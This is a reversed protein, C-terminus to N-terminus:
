QTALMIIFLGGFAVVLALIMYTQVVGTQILRFQKGFWQPVAAGLTDGIFRNIVPIDFYNRFIGGLWYTVRAVLHLVGDIVRRDMGEFVFTEAVWKAPRVFLFDYLEDFYYKNKLLTHIPL